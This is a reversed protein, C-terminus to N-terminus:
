PFSSHLLLLTPQHSWPALVVKYLLAPPSSEERDRGGVESCLPQCHPCFWTPIQMLYPSVILKCPLCEEQAAALLVEGALNGFTGLYVDCKYGLNQLFFNHVIFTMQGMVVAWLLWATISGLVLLLTPWFLPYSSRCLPFLVETSLM